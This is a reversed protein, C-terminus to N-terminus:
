IGGHITLCPFEITYKTGHGFDQRIKGKLTREVLIDVLVLGMQRDSTRSYPTIGCGNDSVVLVFVSAGRSFSIRVQGPGGGFAHLLSNAVLETVILGCAAARKDDLTIAEVNVSLGIKYDSISHADFIARTLKELYRSMDVDSEQGTLQLMRHVYAIAEIRDRVADFVQQVHGDDEGHPLLAEIQNLSRLVRHHMERLLTKTRTLDHFVVQVEGEGPGWRGYVEVDVAQGSPRRVKMEVMPEVAEKRRLKELREAAVSRSADDIFELISRGGLSEEGFLRVAAPNALTIKGEQHIVISDPSQEVLSRWREELERQETVDWFIAQVGVVKKGGDLVPTKVVRVWRSKDEGPFRHEEVREIPEQTSMVRNDVEVYEKAREEPYFDFDTRGIIDELNRKVSGCFSANASVFRSNLDKRFVCQPINDLLSHFGQLQQYLRTRQIALAAQDALTLLLSRETDTLKRTAKGNVYLVGVVAGNVLLPVAVMSRYQLVLEPNVDTDSLIDTIEVMEKQAIVRQTIGKPHSLRPEPHISGETKFRQTVQTGNDNLLYIVGSDTHTLRMAGSVIERLVDGISSGLIDKGISHVVGLGNGREIAIAAHHALTELVLLDPGSFWSPEDHVASVVGITQNAVKLPVALLSRAKASHGHSDAYLPTALLDDILVASGSYFARQVPSEPCRNAPDSPVLIQPIPPLSKPHWALCELFSDDGHKDLLFLDCRTCGLCASIASTIAPLLDAVRLSTAIRRTVESVAELARIQRQAVDLEHADHITQASAGAIDELHVIQDPSLRGYVGPVDHDLTILGITCGQFVLPMGIWSNVDSTAAQKEWGIAEQTDAIVVSRRKDVIEKIIPDADIPRLLWPEVSEKNFGHAAVLIRKRDVILQVSAKKFPVDSSLSRLLDHAATSTMVLAERRAPDLSLLGAQRQYRTREELLRSNAYAVAAQNAIVRCLEVDETSFSKCRGVADLSISGVTSEGVVIPVVVMSGIDLRTAVLQFSPSELFIPHRRLRPAVIPLRDHLLAMQSPRGAIKIREGVLSPMSPPHEAVIRFFESREDLIAVTAHDAGLLEKTKAALAGFADRLPTDGRLDPFTGNIARLTAVFDTAM